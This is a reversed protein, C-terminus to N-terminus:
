AAPKKAQALLPAGCISAAERSRLRRFSSSNRCNIINLNALMAAATAPTAKSEPQELM